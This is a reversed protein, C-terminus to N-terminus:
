ESEVRQSVTQWLADPIGGADVTVLAARSAGSELVIARSYLRDLIGLNNKPLESESPTVDVKAAGVRLMSAGRTVQALVDRPFAIALFTLLIASSAKMRHRRGQHARCCAM